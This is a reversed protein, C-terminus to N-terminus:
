EVEKAPEPTLIFYRGVKDVVLSEDSRIVPRGVVARGERIACNASSGYANEIAAKSNWNGTGVRIM